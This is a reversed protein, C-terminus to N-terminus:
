NQPLPCENTAVWTLETCKLEASQLLVHLNTLHLEAPPKRGLLLRTSLVLQSAVALGGSQAAFAHAQQQEFPTRGLKQVESQLQQM